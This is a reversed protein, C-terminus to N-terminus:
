IPPLGPLEEVAKNSSKLAEQITKGEGNLYGNFQYRNRGRLYDMVKESYKSTNVDSM